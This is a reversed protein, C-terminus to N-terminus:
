LRVSFRKIAETTKQYAARTQEFLVDAEDSKVGRLSETLAASREYLNTFGLNHSVGKLTHAAQFARQVEGKNMAESLAAFSKDDLFKLVMREIFDPSCLRRLVDEYDANMYKYCAELNM